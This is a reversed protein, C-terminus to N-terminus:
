QFDMCIEDIKHLIGFLLLELIFVRFDTMGVWGYEDNSVWCDMLGIVVGLMFFTLACRACM